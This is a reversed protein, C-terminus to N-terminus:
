DTRPITRERKDSVDEEFKIWWVLPHRRLWDEMKTRDTLSYPYCFHFTAQPGEETMQFASMAVTSDNSMVMRMGEKKFADLQAASAEDKLMASLFVVTSDDDDGSAAVVFNEDSM